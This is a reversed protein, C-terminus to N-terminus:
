KYNLNKLFLDCFKGWTMEDNKLNRETLNWFEPNELIEVIRNATKIEDGAPVIFGNEGNKIIDEAGSNPTAVIPLGQNLAETLVLALGEEFSPLCFVSASNYKELLKEGRLIGFYKIWSNYTISRDILPNWGGVLWLQAHPIKDRVLKMSNILVGIGKRPGIQGVFLVTQERKKQDVTLGAFKKQSFAYPIKILKDPSINNNIFTEMVFSSPVLIKDALEYEKLEREVFNDPNALWNIKHYDAALKNLMINSLTHTSGRDLIKISSQLRSSTFIEKCYGANSIIVESDSPVFKLATTTFLKAYFTAPVERRFFIRWSRKLVEFFTLGIYKKRSIGYRRAVSYPMSSVMKYLLGRKHLESAYDFAHFRGNVIVTIKQHHM